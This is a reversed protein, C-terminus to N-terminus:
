CTIIVKLAEREAARGLTDWADLITDFIFRHSVFQEATRREQAVLKLLMPKTTITTTTTTSVLGTHDCNRSGCARLGEAGAVDRAGVNTVTGGPRIIQTTPEFTQPVGVAQASSLSGQCRGADAGPVRRVTTAVPSYRPSWRGSPRKV